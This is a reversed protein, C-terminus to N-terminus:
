TEHGISLRESIKIINKNRFFLFLNKKLFFTYIIALFSNFIYVGFSATFNLLHVYHCHCFL